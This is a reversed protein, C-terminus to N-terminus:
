GAGIPTALLRSPSFPHTGIEELRAWLRATQENAGAVLEADDVRTLRRDRVVLEGGVVVDRVTSASLGFIWHGALTAADLPTPAAYDLVALDAPAGPELRGLRPEAFARGALGSGVALRGLAWAPGTELEEERRRLYATRSEEFLDGGIGDTGLAVRDGLWGLPTRGVGNNMNSRPNHAVAVKTSRLMEAEAPDLHVAHALLASEDLVGAAALRQVVRSGTRAVADAEDAADEAVHIHLGSGTRGALAACTALTEDGLTFSAHAGVMGRALPYWHEASRRLFRANEEIGAASREPGDRDTVEYALVSRLGLEGFAEAIVHLSGDIANPSAHHDILTTTGALLAERGAVLASARIMPGDLARDLRWWVRQLIELFTTPAALHYPMGRALASYAHAHANVNGPIVLCGGCDLTPADVALAAGAAAIRGDRVHLDAREVVPPDLARVVTAGTLLLNM